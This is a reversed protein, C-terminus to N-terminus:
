YPRNATFNSVSELESLFKHMATRHEAETSIIVGGSQTRFDSLLGVPKHIEPYADHLEIPYRESARYDETTHAVVQIIKRNHWSERYIDMDSLMASLWDDGSLYTPISNQM